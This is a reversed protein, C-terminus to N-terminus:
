PCLIKDIKENRLEDVDIFYKNFDTKKIPAWIYSKKISTNRNEYTRETCIYYIIGFEQEIESPNRIEYFKGKQWKAWNEGYSKGNIKYFNSNTEFYTRKCYVKM